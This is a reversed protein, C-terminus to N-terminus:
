KPQTLDTLSPMRQSIRYDIYADLKEKVIGILNEVRSYGWDKTLYAHVAKNYDLLAETYADFLKQENM